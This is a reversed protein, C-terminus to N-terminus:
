LWLRDIREEFVRRGVYMGGIELWCDVHATLASVAALGLGELHADRSRGAVRVVSSGSCAGLFSFFSSSSSSLAKRSFFRAPLLPDSGASHRARASWLRCILLGLLIERGLGSALARQYTKEGECHTAPHIQALVQRSCRHEPVFGRNRAGMLLSSTYGEVGGYSAVIRGRAMTKDGSVSLLCPMLFDPLFHPFM